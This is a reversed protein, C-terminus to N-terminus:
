AKPVGGTGFLEMKIREAPIGFASLKKATAVM